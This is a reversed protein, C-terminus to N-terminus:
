SQTAYKSWPRGRSKKKKRKGLYLIYYSIFSYPLVLTTREIPEISSKYKYKINFKLTLIIVM